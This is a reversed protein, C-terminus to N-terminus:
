FEDFEGMLTICEAVLFTKGGCISEINMCVTGLAVMDGIINDRHCLGLHLATEYSIQANVTVYKTIVWRCM